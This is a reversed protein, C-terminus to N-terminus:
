IFLYKLIVYIFNKLIIHYIKNHYYYFYKKKVKKNSCLFIKEKISLFNPILNSNCDLCKFININEISEKMTFIDKNDIINKYYDSNNKKDKENNFIEKKKQINNINNIQRKM